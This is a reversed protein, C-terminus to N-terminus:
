EAPRINQNLRFVNEPDYHRKVRRLREYNLGYAKRALDPEDELGPFNVYAGGTSFPQMSAWAQRAWEVHQQSDAADTWAADISLMFPADRLGFATEAAAIAGMAGGMRWVILQTQPSSRTRALSVAAEIAEEGLRELYTSKRHYLQAQPTYIFDSSSQHDLNDVPGEFSAQPKGLERV